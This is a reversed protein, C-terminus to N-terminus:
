DDSDGSLSSQVWHEVDLEQLRKELADRIDTEARTRVRELARVTLAAHRVQVDSESAQSAAARLEKVVRKHLESRELVYASTAQMAQLDVTGNLAFSLRSQTDDIERALADAKDAISQRREEAARYCVRLDQLRWNESQVAVDTMKKKQVPDSNM